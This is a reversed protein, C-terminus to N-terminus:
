FAIAFGHARDLLSAFGNMLRDQERQACRRRYRRESEIERRVFPLLRQRLGLRQKGPKLRVPFLDIRDQAVNEIAVVLTRNEFRDSFQMAGPLLNLVIERLAIAVRGHEVQHRDDPVDLAHALDDSRRVFGGAAVCLGRGAGHVAAGLFRAVDDQDRQKGSQGAHESDAPRHQMVAHPPRQGLCNGGHRPDGTTVHRARHEHSRACILNAGDHGRERDEPLVRQRAPLEFFLPRALNGIAVRAAFLEFGRDRIKSRRDDRGQVLTRFCSNLV